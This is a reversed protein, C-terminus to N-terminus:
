FFVGSQQRVRRLFRGFAARIDLYKDTRTGDGAEFFGAQLAAVVKPPLIGDATPETDELVSREMRKWFFRGLPTWYYCDPDKAKDERLQNRTVEVDIHVLSLLFELWDFIADYMVDDPLYERLPDRLIQFL